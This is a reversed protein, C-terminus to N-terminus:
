KDDKIDSAQKDLRTFLRRTFKGLFKNCPHLPHNIEDARYRLTLLPACFLRLM